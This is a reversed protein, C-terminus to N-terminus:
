RLLIYNITLTMTARPDPNEAPFPALQAGRWTSLAAMDLWPSGSKAVVEVSEVKGSRNVVIEVKVTGDEGNEAAQRPYYKHAAWYAALGSAWDAGIRRARADFFAETRDPGAKPAGLALDMARSGPGTRPRAPAPPTARSYSLDIPPSFGDAFRPRSVPRQAQQVPRSPRPPLPPLPAPAAPLDFRPAQPQPPAVEPADLRVVPVSRPAAAEPEPATSPPAADPEPPAPASLAPQPAPAEASPPETLTPVPPAPVPPAPEAENPPTEAMPQTQASDPGPTAATSPAAASGEYVLEVAQDPTLAVGQEDRRLILVALVAVHVLVSLAVAIQRRRSPERRPLPVLRTRVSVMTAEAPATQGPTPPLATM